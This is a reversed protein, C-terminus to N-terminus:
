LAEHQPQPRLTITRRPRLQAHTRKPRLPCPICDKQSFKIKIVEQKHGDVTPTWSISKKGAPCVAQPLQWDVSFNEAAFGDGARAQWRYDGKSLGVVDNWLEEQSIVLIKADIYGLDVIHEKPLVGKAQLETHIEITMDSYATTSPTMEVHTILRPADDDCTETLPIWNRLWEPVTVALTNLALRMTEGQLLRTRFESLLSIYFGIDMLPLYLSYKWDIRTRVAETAQRDSLNGLFQLVLVLMLRFPSEAPQGVKPFLASFDDDQFLTRFANFMRPYFHGEPFHSHSIQHTFSTSWIPPISLSASSTSNAVTSAIL